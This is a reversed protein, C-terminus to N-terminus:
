KLLKLHRTRQIAEYVKERNNLLFQEEPNESACLDLLIIAGGKEIEAKWKNYKETVIPDHHALEWVQDHFFEDLEELTEIRTTEYDSLDMPLEVGITLPSPGTKRHLTRRKGTIIIQIAPQPSTAM